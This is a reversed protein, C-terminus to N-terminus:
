YINNVFDGNNFHCYAYKGDKNFVILDKEKVWEIRDFVFDVIMKNSQVNIIGWKKSPGFVIRYGCHFYSPDDEPISELIRKM